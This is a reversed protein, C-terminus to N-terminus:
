RTLVKTMLLLETGHPNVKEGTFTFGAAQYLRIARDLFATTYLELLRADEQIAFQEVHDLMTKGVGIGRASPHVAMGRVMVSESLKMAGVSGIVSKELETVWVPGEELRTLIGSEPLVTAAFAEPTYLAEFQAFSVRLLASIAAADARTARRVVLSAM